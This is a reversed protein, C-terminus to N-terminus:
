RDDAPPNGNNPPGYGPGNDQDPPPPVDDYAQSRAREREQSAIIATLALLGFGVAVATGDGHHHRLRPGGDYTPHGGRPGAGFPDASAATASLLALALATRLLRKM